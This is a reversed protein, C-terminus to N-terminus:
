RPVEDESITAAKSPVLLSKIGNGHRAADFAESWQELRYTASVLPSLEVQRDSLLRMARRWSSPTSAFGGSIRLEKFSVQAFPILVDEATQGIQIFRGRKRVIDMGSRMASGSGSCEIVVDVGSAWAGSMSEQSVPASYTEFGLQEAIKLRTVDTSTGVVAVHGGAARAVQAALIGVAGPGMVAVLDGPNILCDPDFLSQCVCALPECLAAATVDVWSPLVHINRSPVVVSEAFGGDIGSGISLRLECLNPRGSRCYECKECTSYFTELAVNKGVLAPDTDAGVETVTGSVEHGLVVPPKSPYSGELIHIDTGCIGAAAVKVRVFGRAPLEPLKLERLELVVARGSSKM